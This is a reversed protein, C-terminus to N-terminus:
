QASLYNYLEDKLVVRKKRLTNLVDDTTAEAGSEIRHIENNCDHYNEFLKKFHNDSIKLNHIKEEFQPFEHLLDHKEM